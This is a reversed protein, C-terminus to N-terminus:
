KSVGKAKNLKRIAWAALRCSDSHYKQWYNKPTFPKKCVECLKKGM